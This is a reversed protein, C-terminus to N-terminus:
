PLDTGVARELDAAAEALETHADVGALETDILRRQENLVDILRLQGLTYAQRMVALNREAQDIIGRRYLELTQRAAAWRHYAAEVEHPISAEIYERHLRAATARAQAAEVNGKNRGPAFIPISLGVSLVNDRDFLLSPTGLATVGYLQEFESTRHTYRASVTLDPVGEAHALSLAAAAREEAAKAAQLDARVSAARTTLDALALDRDLPSETALTLPEKTPMGIVRRLELLAGAVRGGFTARQAQVRAVETALLQEELVSADGEAVRAKTLRYSEEIATLLRALAENKAQAAWAEAVQRKLDFVFQRAREAVDAEALAVDTQGVAVRKGRKGATEIPQFYSASYEREGQTGLPRGTGADLEVTPNLRVGALRLLGQAEAVRQRAGLLDRNRDLALQVIDHTTRPRDQARPQAALVLVFAMVWAFAVANPM